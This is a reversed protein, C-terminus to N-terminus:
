DQFATPYFSKPLLKLLIPLTMFTGPLAIIVFLPLTKLIDILQQRVIEKEEKTLAETRSKILLQYLERSELIEKQLRDKNRIMSKSIREQFRSTVNLLKPRKNLIHLEKDHHFLFSELATYSQEHEEESISLKDRLRDLFQHELEDVEHDSMLTLLSLEYIYRKLLWPMEIFEIQDLNIGTEFEYHLREKLNDDLDSSSLFQEFIKREQSELSQNSHAAAAICELVIIRYQTHFAEFDEEGQIIQQICFFIDIFLLSNHFYDSFEGPKLKFHVKRELYKELSDYKISELSGKNKKTQSLPM